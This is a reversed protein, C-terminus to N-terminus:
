DPYAQGTFLSFQLRAQRELMDRGNLVLCGAAEARQLLLTKAPKYILDMVTEKGSFRYLPIPDKDVDPSMGVSTTQIVLDKFRDMRAMGSEDLGGWQFGVREALEKARYTSRNLVLAKAGLRKLEFVVSRAVGGAGIVSVKKGRLTKVGMADLLSASFGETDTNFGDWGAKSRVITNCSAIEDVAKSRTRLFPLIEEKFPITVSVGEIALEEAFNFFAPLSDTKFPLYVADIGLREFGPNHISPSSTATLPSGIIGFLRTKPGLSHFRYLKALEVPDIQGPAAPKVGAEHLPSSFSLLSGLREALIRTCSGYAGMGVVIKEIDGCERAARFIASVDALGHPMVAVKAIEDGSRRLSRIRQALNAPVGSFDHMSRIIRTGFARAAEELSPVDLDEELDVYAFNRRRDSDAWALGTALLTIRAGEGEVFEGGDIKRRVTLIVPLGAQEPFRRINFREPKDLCDVRLEAIDVFSRYKDLIALNREITNATLCLCIKSM